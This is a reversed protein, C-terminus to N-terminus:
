SEGDEAATGLLLSVIGDNITTAVCQLVRLLGGRSVHRRWLGERPCTADVVSGTVASALSSLSSSSSADQRERGEDGGSWGFIARVCEMLPNGCGSELVDVEDGSLVYVDNSFGSCNSSNSSSHLTPHVLLLRRIGSELAPLMYDRELFNVEKTLLSEYTNYCRDFEEVIISLSPMHHYSSASGGDGGEGGEERSEGESLILSSVTSRLAQLSLTATCLSNLLVAQDALALSGGGAGPEQEPCDLELAALFAEQLSLAPPPPSSSSVPAKSSGKSISGKSSSDEEGQPTHQQTTTPEPTTSGRGGGSLPSTM